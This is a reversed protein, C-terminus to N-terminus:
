TTCRIIATGISTTSTGNPLHSCRTKRGTESYRTATARGLRAGAPSGAAAGTVTSYVHRHGGAAHDDSEAVGHATVVRSAQDNGRRQPTPEGGLRNGAGHHVRSLAAAELQDVRQSAGALRHDDVAEFNRGGHGAAHPNERRGIDGAGRPEDAGVVDGDVDHEVQRTQEADLHGLTDDNDPDFPGVGAQQPIAQRGLDSGSGVANGLAEM